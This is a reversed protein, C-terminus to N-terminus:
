QCLNSEQKKIDLIQLTEEFILNIKYIMEEYQKYKKDRFGNELKQEQFNM